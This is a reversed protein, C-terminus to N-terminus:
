ESGELPYQFNNSQLDCIMKGKCDKFIQTAHFLWPLAQVVPMILLGPTNWIVELVIILM